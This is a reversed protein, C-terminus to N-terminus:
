TWHEMDLITRLTGRNELDPEFKKCGQRDPAVVGTRHIRFRPFAFVSEAFKGGDRASSRSTIVVAGIGVESRPIKSSGDVTADLWATM